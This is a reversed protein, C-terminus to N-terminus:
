YCGICEPPRRKGCWPLVIKRRGKLQDAIAKILRNLQPLAKEIAYAVTKDENNIHATIEEVSMKELHRYASPEETIKLTVFFKLVISHLKREIGPLFIASFFKKM